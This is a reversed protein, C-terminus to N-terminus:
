PLIIRPDPRHPYGAPLPQVLDPEPADRCPERAAQHDPPAMGPFVFLEVPVGMAKLGRYLETANSLPVRRDDTGHQILMPTSAHPWAASRPLRSTLRATASPRAPCTISPSIPSTTASTTPTGIPSAPAWRSPRSNTPTCGPLPRSTAARRGAWAASASASRGLGAGGPADIASELDWLDGVGLNNVNLEMFAQGRGIRAATIPNSCWIGQNAFQVSPYYRLDEGSLLYAHSSDQPGGHVVFVLPYKKAPDFDPPKRLM